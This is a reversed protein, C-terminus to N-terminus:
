AAAPQGAIHSAQVAESAAEQAAEQAAETVAYESVDARMSLLQGNMAMQWIEVRSDKPANFWYTEAPMVVKELYFRNEGICKLVVMKPTTNSYLCDQM